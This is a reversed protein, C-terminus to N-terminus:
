PHRQPQDASVGYAQAVLEIPHVPAQGTGQAIQLGALPCDTAVTAAGTRGIEDFLKQAYKMSLEYNEEKMSWTGDHGTCRDVVSVSTKPLLELLEKSKLGINQNKLHCAPQYAVEGAGAQFDLNLRGQKKLAVLFEAADKTQKAVLRAAETKLLEPYEKKLMLSCTPGLAIITLGQQAYPLLRRVNREAAAAAGGINGYDLHPMGCCEQPPCVVEFGNKELVAVMAKGIRPENYNVSCTYFLAVRGSARAKPGRVDWWRRFTEFHFLPLNRDPHVGLLARLVLRHPRWRNLANVVPAFLSSLAGLADVQAFIRDRWKGKGERLSAAKHRRMLKPFDLSFRHPPHYPCFDFCLGCHFCEDVVKQHDADTLAEVPNQLLALTPDLAAAHHGEEKMETSAEALVAAASKGGAAATQQDEIEDIRKFVNSFSPCLHVCRRCGHCIDLIRTTEERLAARDWFVAQEPSPNRAEAM